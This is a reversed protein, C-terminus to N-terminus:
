QIERRAVCRAATISILRLVASLRELFKYSFHACSLMNRAHAVEVLKKYWNKKAHTVHILSM